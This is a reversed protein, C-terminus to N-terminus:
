AGQVLPVRRIVAQGPRVGLDALGGALRAALNSAQWFSVRRGEPEILATRDPHLEASAELTQAINFREPIQWRFRARLVKRPLPELQLRM